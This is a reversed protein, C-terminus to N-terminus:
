QKFHHRFSEPTILLRRILANVEAVVVSRYNEAIVPPQFEQQVIRRYAQYTKSYSMLAMNWDWQM